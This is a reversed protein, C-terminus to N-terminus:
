LYKQLVAQKKNASNKIIAQNETIQTELIEIESILKSQMELPPVPIYIGEIRDISARFNRSFRMETGVKNLAWAVYKYHLENTKVRLVGCHDTPYFPTNAPMANVLWDGDIGWLVSNQSFDKILKKNIYGFIDFVNASYVPIGKEKNEQIETSLVRKGISVDFLNKDSLRFQKNANNYLANFKEYIEKKAKEVAIKANETAQDIAECESVIKEQIPLPPLPIKINAMVNNMLKPNASKVVHDPTIDNLVLPLFKILLKENKAKLTGCVNTCNFKGSRFFCTGAYIGDTTWTVYEGEFDFTNISGMIGNNSTQSSYVPYDGQNEEIFQHNIVRGRGIECLDEIKVLDWKSDVAVTKKPTLSFSKNFDKRSFDLLDTLNAYHMLNEFSTATRSDDSLNNGIFNQAIWFSIKSQDDRDKPNFLPTVIDYVTDGGVYQMGENNKANSWEYGLFAKQEKNDSPSKVILVKQSNNYALMFYYFKDQEITKCFKTFAKDIIKQQETKPKEKFEKKSNLNKLLTSKEFDTKYDKFMEYKGLDALNDFVINETLFKKYDELDIAIHLCYKKLLDLDQYIGGANEIENQSDEFYSEAREAYHEAQEPNQAKRRLFLVVTNTGTKGFTGSGLEVISVFDFYKLLIERTQIHTADTNSLISTPVIIGAIGNPALLQKAREIFFCQIVNTESNLGTSEILQFKLKEEETLNMFFDKIAFPPNAVLIDYSANKINGEVLADKEIVQIGDFGYMLTAVQSILSLRDDKEIGFINKYYDFINTQKHKEVLPTIQQAYETLFHGAGCAYDMVKLPEAKEQLVNELPIAQLIFKCIPIPTFFQGETQHCGNALFYEFMDGLFQNQGKTTLRIGQWMRVMDLLIKANKNFQPKNQVKIFGFDLGKYFKLQKFIDKIRKKTANKGGKVTWFANEIEQEGFYIIDKDLFREMGIKYLEQLRDVYDFYNDYAIGKWFFKLNNPNEKEDVIKCLFLHVLIDFANEKRSVTHQRLITRFEHYLGKKDISNVVQTDEKLTYQDKGIQYTQINEEFIGTQSFELQYTNKWVSFRDKVNKAKEFSLLKNDEALIKQNDKHSIIRQSVVIEKTKEDFDSAYLCLFQTEQIQQAYSFLQGGDQQTEKWAKEFERGATKCEILLLPKEEQNRVLIDARGGSAGHGVKWKPELELHKPDYGKELLRHVCEFVVFNEDQAFNCTQRENIILGLSEPYILEKKSFDVSLFADTQEFKKTFINKEEKFDLFQLLKKFNEETTM